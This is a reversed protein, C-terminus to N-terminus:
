RVAILESGNASGHNNDKEREEPLMSYPSVEVLDMLSSM